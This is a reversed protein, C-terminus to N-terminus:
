FPPETLSPDDDAPADDPTYEPPDAPDGWPDTETHVCAGLQYAACCVTPDADWLVPGRGFEAEEIAQIGYM